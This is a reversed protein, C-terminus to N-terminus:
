AEDDGATEDAPPEDDPGAPGADPLLTDVIRRVQTEISADVTGGATSVICGGRTMDPADRVTAEAAGDVGALIGGLVEEVIPRDDPHIRIEVASPRAVLALAGALQDAVVREDTDIRRRTLKEAFALAFALVDRRAELRMTRRERDWGGLAERWAAVVQEVQPRLTELVEARGEARGAERGEALGQERGAARGAEQADRRLTEAEARAEALVAAAAQQADSVVREAQRNLDGFDLVIADRVYRDSNASKILAM